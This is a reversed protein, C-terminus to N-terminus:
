FGDVYRAELVTTPRTWAYHIMVDYWSAVPRSWWFSEPTGPDYVAGISRFPRSSFLWSTEEAAPDRGRLDLFFREHTVTSAYHEFSLPEVPDLQFESLGTYTDGDQGWAIFRGAEHSFGLVIMDEGFRPRMYFGQAGPQTSVHFNHAWVVLRSEPGLQDAVWITNEAMSEDRSQEGVVM